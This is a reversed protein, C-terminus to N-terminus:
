GRITIEISEPRLGLQSALAAKADAILRDISIPGVRDTSARNGAESPVEVNAAPVHNWKLSGVDIGLNAIDDIYRVPNHDGRWVEQLPPDLLAYEQFRVIYRM